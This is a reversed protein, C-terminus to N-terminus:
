PWNFNHGILNSKHKDAQKDDAKPVDPPMGMCSWECPPVMDPLKGGVFIGVADCGLLISWEGIPVPCVEPPVLALMVM